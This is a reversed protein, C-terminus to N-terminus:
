DTPPTASVPVPLEALLGAPNPYDSPVSLETVPQVGVSTFRSGGSLQEPYWDGGNVSLLQSTPTLGTPSAVGCRWVIPPSGWAATTGEDPTVAIGPEGGLDRPLQAALAACETVPAGPPPDVTVARGCGTLGALGAAVLLPVAARVRRRSGQDSSPEREM